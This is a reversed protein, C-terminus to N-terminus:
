EQNVILFIVRYYKVRARSIIKLTFIDVLNTFLNYLTM